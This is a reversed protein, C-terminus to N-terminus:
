DRLMVHGKHRLAWHTDRDGEAPMLELWRARFRIYTDTVLDLLQHVLKPKDFLEVFMGSGWIVECVDMPGQMDPHYVHVYKRLNPYPAFADAFRQGMEFVRAGFGADLDPPGADLLARVGDTGGEVPESTPLTNYEDDMIFLKVGFVSPLISSGYNTRVCAIQGNGRAVSSQALCLQQMLMCDLDALAQNVRVAPWELKTEIGRVRKPSFIDGEFEGDMFTDWQALLNEEVAPDIRHELDELFQKMRDAGDVPREDDARRHNDPPMIDVERLSQAVACTGFM